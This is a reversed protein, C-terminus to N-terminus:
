LPSGGGRVKQVTTGSVEEEVKLNKLGVWFFSGSLQPLAKEIGNLWHCVFGWNRSPEEHNM